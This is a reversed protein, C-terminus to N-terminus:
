YRDTDIVLNRGLILDYEPPNFKFYGAEDHFTIEGFLINDKHIYFDVRLFDPNGAERVIQEAYSIIQELLVPREVLTDSSKSYEPAEFPLLEWQANYFNINYDNHSDARRNLDYEIYEVKGNYMFLKIDNIESGNENQIYKEVIIRPPVNKYQWERHFRYYNVKLCSEIKNKAGSVDFDSKDKCIVLGGSDHTAKIVFQNPLADIDIDDFHEYVGLTPIIHEEGFRDALFKKVAYKDVLTTYLPNHDHIKLWCIKESLKEPKELNIKKGMFIRYEMAVYKKDDIFDLLGATAAHFFLYNRVKNFYLM